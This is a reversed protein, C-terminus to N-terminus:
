RKSQGRKGKSETARPHGTSALTLWVVHNEEDVCYWLRAGAAIDYQWQPLEKGKIVRTGLRGRLPKCVDSRTMPSKKLHAKGAACTGPYQKEMEALALSEKTAYRVDWENKGPQPPPPVQEGRKPKPTM